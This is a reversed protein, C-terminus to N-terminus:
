NLYPYQKRVDLEIYPKKIIKRIFFELRSPNRTYVKSRLGLYKFERLQGKWGCVQCMKITTPEVFLDTPVYISISGYEPKVHIQGCKPCEYLGFSSIRTM